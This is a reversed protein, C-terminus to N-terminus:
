LLHYKLVKHIMACSIVLTYIQCQEFCIDEKVLNEGFEKLVQKPESDDKSFILECIASKYHDLNILDAKKDKDNVIYVNIESDKSIIRSLAEDAERKVHIYSKPDSSESSIGVRLNIRMFEEVMILISNFYDVIANINISSDKEYKIIIHMYNETQPIIEFLCDKAAIKLINNLMDKLNYDISADMREIECSCICYCFGQLEHIRRRDDLASGDGTGADKRIREAAKKIAAPLEEMYNNKVIFDEVGYRIAKKAMDFDSYATLIIM